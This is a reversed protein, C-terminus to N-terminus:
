RRNFEPAALVLAVAQARTEARPVAARLAASQLSGLAARALAQPDPLPDALQGPLDMAWALRGALGQPTIWAATEEPWGDPGAPAGWPQAMAVLPDAVRRQLAKHGWDLIGQPTVGLARLAAAIFEVPQRAKVLPGAFAAPDALMVEYVPLLATDHALYAQAMRAVLGPDPTDSLFHVAIKRALHAATDPRRALDGLAQLVPAMGQGDYRQGLVTEAGPEAQAPRFVQGKGPEYVLGTLLEAMQRVDEQAYAAGVGLTHLEILERALNENLGRQRGEARRAVRSAPGVSASQDLYLLMGPHLVAAVLLDAFRGAVHPRVADEVQSFALAQDWRNRAAVTFHDAWFAALRERFGDEAGVARALHRRLYGEATDRVDRLARNYTQRLAADDRNRRFRARAETVALHQHLIDAAAPAPWRQAALDPGALAALMGAADLPAGPGAPLGYGFRFAAIDAPNTM